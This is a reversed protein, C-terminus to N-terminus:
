LADIMRRAQWLHELDHRYLERTIETLTVRGRYPHIGAWDWAGEHVDWLAYTNHRRYYQFEELVEDEDVDQCDSILPIDDMDVYPIEPDRDRASLIREVQKLTGAEVDRMHVAIGLLCWDEDNGTGPALMQRRRVGYLARRLEGSAEGLAKLLFSPDSGAQRVYQM